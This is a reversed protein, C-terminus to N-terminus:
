RSTFRVRITRPPQDRAELTFEVEEASRLEDVIQQANPHIHGNVAVVTDDYRWSGPWELGSGPRVSLWTGYLRGDRFHPGLVISKMLLERQAQSFVLDEAGAQGVCILCAMLVGLCSHTRTLM